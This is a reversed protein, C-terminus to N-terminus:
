AGSIYNNIKEIISKASIMEIADEFLLEIGFAEEVASLLQIHKLSDWQQVDDMSLGLDFKTVNLIDKFVKSLKSKIQKEVM